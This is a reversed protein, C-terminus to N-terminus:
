YPILYDDWYVDTKVRETIESCFLGDLHSCGFLYPELFRAKRCRSLWIPKFIKWMNIWVPTFFIENLFFFLNFSIKYIKWM